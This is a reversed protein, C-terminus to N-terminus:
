IRQRDTRRLLSVRISKHKKEDFPNNKTESNWSNACLANSTQGPMKEKHLETKITWASHRNPNSTVCNKNTKCKNYNFVIPHILVSTKSARNEALYHDFTVDFLDVFRIVYLLKVIVVHIPLFVLHWVNFRMNRRQASRYWRNRVKRSGNAESTIWNSFSNVNKM